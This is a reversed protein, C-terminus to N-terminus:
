REEWTLYDWLESLQIWRHGNAARKESVLGEIFETQTLKEIKEIIAAM